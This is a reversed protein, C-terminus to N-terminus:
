SASSQAAQADIEAFAANVTDFLRASCGAMDVDPDSPPAVTDVITAAIARFADAAPGVGDLAVPAGADGGAAVSPELPVQGLLPADIAEALAAGGGEGFLAYTSGHECTFSSMNEVVGIVDLFSRRAMDAARQAVKQAALAPTTVVVLDTSPLLRALGMQVDGTGPPMDILLYDLEGWRVDRLFQEVAKTLMLGRWMLATDEDVLFGTSVVKLLGDGVRRENPMIKPKDSDDVPKAEMRDDIGLLRPVSFGWIDADLVGVTHGRAAIAAALNVTVSSKGVGGKGSAIALVNCSLPVETDPANERANWRAKTMVASREDADMEGWSIKVERVGPHRAVRSEVDRKIEARLPCGRITLKIGVTVVGDGSVDVGPVMGLTVIDAGLEPDIVTRLVDTVADVTPPEVSPSTTPEASGADAM